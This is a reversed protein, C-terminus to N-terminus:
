LKMRRFKENKSKEERLKRTKIGARIVKINDQHANIKDIYKPNSIIQVCEYMGDGLSSIIKFEGKLRSIEVIDDVNINKEDQVKNRSKMQM